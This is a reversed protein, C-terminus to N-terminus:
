AQCPHVNGPFQTKGPQPDWELGGKELYLIPQYATHRHLLFDAAVGAM